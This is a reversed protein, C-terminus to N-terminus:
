YRVVSELGLWDALAGLELAEGYADLTEAEATNVNLKGLNDFDGSLDGVAIQGAAELDLAVVLDTPGAFSEVASEAM